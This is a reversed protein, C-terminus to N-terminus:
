KSPMEESSEAEGETKPKFFLTWQITIIIGRTALDWAVDKLIGIIFFVVTVKM